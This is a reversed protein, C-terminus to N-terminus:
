PTFPDVRWKVDPTAIDSLKPNWGASQWGTTSTEGLCHSGRPLSQCGSWNNLVGVSALAVPQTTATQLRFRIWAFSTTYAIVAFNIFVRSKTEDWSIVIMCHLDWCSVNANMRDPNHLAPVLLDLLTNLNPEWSFDCSVIGVHMPPASRKSTSQTIYWISLLLAFHYWISRSPKFTAQM